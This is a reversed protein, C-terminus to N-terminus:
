LGDMLKRALYTFELAARRAAERQNAAASHGGDINEYYLFPLGLDELRRAMKRAHGPHVRDDKTSTEFYIEPYDRGPTVNHYPSIRELFAREEAVDPDGYEDMWSAGALLLHYRLMDLLPVQCVIAAFLDPRQTYMVGMLLGGNSGGMIGLKDPSTVKRSILDEAVAIFDDYIVQRRTKLGAQHWAPGFEGGGRINAVVYVGGQDLWLRGVTGSYSPTQSVQFGGYAYLLTPSSGDAPTDRRRVMFYPVREGDKSTAEFQEVVYPEAEFWHPLSKLPSLGGSATDYAYLADPSLYSEHGLFAISERPDAHIVGASGAGPLGVDAFSWAGAAGDRKLKLVRLAVNDSLTLLVGGSSIAVGQIAQRDGPRFVRAFTAKGGSLFSRWSLGALDGSAFAEGGEPTWDQELTFLLTDGFVGQVTARPPLPLRIPAGDGDPFIWNSSTFFTEARQAGHWAQGTEDELRIPFVGVDTAEGQFRLRAASLPEGRRLSKVVFPYGSETLAGEGWDTAVLLEQDSVWQVSTKAEPLDFGDRVFTRTVADFERVRVADKGGDSLEVLCMRYDPQLCDVGKYVWNAGESAALQDVDLLTEWAPAASGYDALTTRRWIGREHADDQWFNYVYGGRVAGYPIRDASTAIRLAEAYYGSYRRDGELIALSRENQARVWALAEEGEVDELFLHAQTDFGADTMTDDGAACAALMAAAAFM